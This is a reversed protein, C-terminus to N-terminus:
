ELFFSDAAQVRTELFKVRGETVHLDPVDGIVVTFVPHGSATFGGGAAVFVFRRTNMATLGSM